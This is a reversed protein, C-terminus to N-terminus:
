AAAPSRLPARPDDRGAPALEGRPRPRVPDGHDREGAAELQPRSHDAVPERDRELDGRVGAHARRQALLHLRRAPEGLLEGRLPAGVAGLVAVRLPERAAQM